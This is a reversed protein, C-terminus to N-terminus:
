KYRVWLDIQENCSLSPLTASWSHQLQSVPPLLSLSIPCLVDLLHPLHCSVDAKDSEKKTPRRGTCRHLLQGMSASPFWPRLIRVLAKSGSGIQLTFELIASHDKEECNAIQGVRGHLAKESSSAPPRMSIQLHHKGRLTQLTPLQPLFAWLGLLFWFFSLSPLLFSLSFLTLSPPTTTRGRDQAFQQPFLCFWVM